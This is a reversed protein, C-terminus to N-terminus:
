FHSILGQKGLNLTLETKEEGFRKIRAAKNLILERREKMEPYLIFVLFIFTLALQKKFILCTNKLAAVAKSLQRAKEFKTFSEKFHKLLNNNYKLM